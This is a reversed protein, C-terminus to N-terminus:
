SKHIDVNGGGLPHQGSVYGDSMLIGYTDTSGGTGGDTVDIRFVVDGTGNVTARGYITATKPNASLDCTTALLVTAKVNRPAVPGHDQYEEQGQIATGDNSVKANGGFSARDGNNAIIWGGNTITVECFATSAPPTWIKTAAGSPEPPVTTLDRVGNGNTDAFATIANTGPLAATFSFTCQGNALTTCSGSAPTPFTPGTVTFYVKVGSVPNGFADRVTATVIHPTGVVNTATAPTLVLTAPAGATWVKTANAFPEGANEMSNNNTDAYAHINDLGAINGTYSFTAVGMANTPSSGTGSATNAGSVSFRVTVGPVPRGAFDRVTATVTHQTGATNTATAPTLTMTYPAGIMDLKTVFADNPAGNFTTDYAGATTPFNSSATLGTVYANGSTDVAISMGQDNNGSPGNSGGLFTSYLLGSGLPNFKTVFADDGGNYSTDFAGLTTPFNSSSTRGAVHADMAADLAIGQGRDDGTGGLYTSYALTGGGPNFKTVFADNAGGGYSTAFAGTTTPFTTSNTLGTLYARTTGDVTIGLGRDTGSGGLYTSYGYNYTDYSVGGVTMSGGYTLKTAFADEVGNFSTDFSGAVTPFNSSTTGGTLYVNRSADVFIARASDSGSGGLYTMYAAAAAFRDLRLFFADMPGSLSQQLRFPAPTVGINTSTTDGTVYVDGSSHVAIGWGQDAGSGGAYTSFVLGTGAQNLKTVFADTSGGQYTPRYVTSVPPTTLPDKQTPFNSSGTFGTVYAFGNADVAIALGQDGSSGGIYTSYLVTGSSNLKTVFVDTAGGNYSTDYAGLTTPFNTSATSGTVYANGAADIAIAFARDDGSGGLFTSYVLGPDIVLPLRPDYAGVALGFTTASRLVFHSEVGVRAGDVVQYTDPRSDTLVGASTQIRLNGEADISLADAGDYALGIDKVRAGPQVEFTYELRGDRGAFLMDIGPWLESYAVQGYTPVATHWKTPDNGYLFNATGPLTGRGEPSADSNAGLFRLDLSVGGGEGAVALKAAGPTFAFSYGSGQAYFRARPDAQGVNPVFGLPVKELSDAGTKAATGVDGAPNSVFAAASTGHGALSAPGLNTPRWTSGVFTMALVAVILVAALPRGGPASHAMSRTTWPIARQLSDAASPARSLQLSATALLYALCSFGAITGALIWPAM